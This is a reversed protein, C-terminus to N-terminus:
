LKNVLAAGTRCTYAAERLPKGGIEDDLHEGSFVFGQKEYFRRAPLNDELVWLMVREFGDAALLRLCERLLLAGKGKGIEEPLLYISVIEGFGKFREWRSACCSATGILRGAEELVLHHMDERGLHMAWKGEPIRDLFSQPVIGKYACKWSREYIGSIELIDDDASVPRVRM